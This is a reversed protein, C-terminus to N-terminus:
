TNRGEQRSLVINGHVDIRATWSPPVVVTTDFEEVIIPGAVADQLLNGRTMIRTPVEGYESGFYCRRLRSRDSTPTNERFQEGLVGFSLDTGKSWAKLRISVLSVADNERRYGYVREHESHFARLLYRRFNSAPVEAPLSLTLESSQRKYRLDVQREYITRREGGADPDADKRARAIVRDFAELLKAPDLTELDMPISQVYDYRLDALLLGLASFLGPYPPIYVTTMGLNEALTAAHVPGSGGFAVLTFERPDRGRETTVARIARTMAANAVRHIGHAAAQTELQLRGCLHTEIAQYAAGANLKVTGGAIGDPNIYGLVVNADTITPRDGGRSYCAPGPVAGASAPGVRLVGGDDTWALSGGGTGVEAIDYSPVRLAYGAGESLRGAINIGAGVEGEATEIPEGDEVLCAKATTGGMDFAVVRTLSLERALSAAALVGAAPGSEIMQVPRKRAHGSSMIGGNSQMIKLKVPFEKLQEELQDLYGKVVPLLYGNLATTSTREYERIEPLVDASTCVIMGPLAKRILAEARKEHTPNVYSHLFAIAIVEAGAAELFHAAELVEKENLEVDIEGTATVRETVERRRRRPILPPTRQWFVNYVGPRGLRRIELEDRFGRTTILGTTAGKNELVANSVITTAHVLGRVNSGKDGATDSICRTVDTGVSDPLTLIKYTYLGGATDNLIVDTFTGGIDFAVRLPSETRM